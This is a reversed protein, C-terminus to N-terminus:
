EPFGWVVDSHTFIADESLLGRQQSREDLLPIHRVYGKEILFEEIPPLTSSSVEISIVNIKTVAWDFGRLVLLEHGEVDLSLYDVVPVSARRLSEKM